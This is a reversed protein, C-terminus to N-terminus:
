LKCGVLEGLLVPDCSLELFHFWLHCLPAPRVPIDVSNLYIELCYGWWEWLKTFSWFSILNEVRDGSTSVSLKM